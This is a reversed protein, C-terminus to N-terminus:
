KLFLLGPLAAQTAAARRATEEHGKRRLGSRLERKTGGFKDAEERFGLTGKTGGATRESAWKTFWRFKERTRSRSLNAVAVCFPPADRGLSLGDQGCISSRRLPNRHSTQILLGSSFYEPFFV